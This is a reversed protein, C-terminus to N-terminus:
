PRGGGCLRALTTLCRHRTWDLRGIWPALRPWRLSRRARRLTITVPERRVGHEDLYAEFWDLLRLRERHAAGSTESLASCSDPRQRYWAWCEAAVYAPAHLCLKLFFAQDEYMGRFGDEFGGVQAIASRRLLVNCTTPTQCRNELLQIVLDPPEAIANERVGLDLFEDSRGAQADHQWSHWLLTRGYVFAAKPFERLLKVQQELKHPLWVDDADLFAVYEGRAGAIGLNRSTSMGLNAHQAHELYRVREPHQDVHRLAIESSGDTSGDDVLLLEWFPYTQRVVSAIAEALYRAENFFIIVASVLGTSANM